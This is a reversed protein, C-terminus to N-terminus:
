WKYLLAKRILAMPAPRVHRIQGSCRPNLSLRWGQLRGWCNHTNTRTRHSSQLIHISCRLTHWGSTVRAISHFPNPKYKTYACAHPVQMHVHMHCSGALAESIERRGRRSVRWSYREYFNWLRCADTALGDSSAKVSGQVWSLRGACCLAYHQMQASHTTQVHPLHWALVELPSGLVWSCAAPRAEAM